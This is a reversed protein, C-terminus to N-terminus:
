LPVMMEWVFCFFFATERERERDRLSEALCLGSSVARVSQLVGLSCADWDSRDWSAFGRKNCGGERGRSVPALSRITDLLHDTVVGVFCMPRPVDEKEERAKILTGISFQFQEPTTGARIACKTYGEMFEGFIAMFSSDMGDAAM